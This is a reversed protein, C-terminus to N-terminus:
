PVHSLLASFMYVSTEDTWLYRRDTRFLGFPSIVYQCNWYPAYAFQAHNNILNIISAHVEYCRGAAVSDYERRFSLYYAYSILYGLVEYVLLRQEITNYFPIRDEGECCYRVAEYYKQNGKEYMSLFKHLWEVDSLKGLKNNELM